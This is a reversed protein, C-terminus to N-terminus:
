DDHDRPRACRVCLDHLQIGGRTLGIQERLVDALTTAPDIQVRVDRGNVTLQLPVADSGFVRADSQIDPAGTSDAARDALTAGVAASTARVEM